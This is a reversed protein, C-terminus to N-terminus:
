VRELIRELEDASLGYGRGVESVALARGFIKSFKKNMVSIHTRVSAAEPRKAQRYAYKLVDGVSIYAPYARILLRLIMRETKTLPIVEGLYMAEGIDASADFGSVTYIGIGERGLSVLEKAIGLAVSSSYATEPFTAAFHRCETEGMAFFPIDTIARLSAIYDDLDAIGECSNFLVARYLGSLESPADDPSVPYALFGMYYFMEAVSERNRKNKDIILLM